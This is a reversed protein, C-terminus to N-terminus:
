DFNVYLNNYLKNIKEKVNTKLDLLLIDIPSFFEHANEKELEQRAYEEAFKEKREREPINDYRNIPHFIYEPLSNYLGKRSIYFETKADNSKEIAIIDKYSNRKHLGDISIRYTGKPLYSLIDEVNIDDPLYKLM